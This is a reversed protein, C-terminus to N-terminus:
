RYMHSVCKVCDDKTQNKKHTGKELCQYGEVSGVHRIVKLWLSLKYRKMDTNLSTGM